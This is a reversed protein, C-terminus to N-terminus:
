DSELRLNIRVVARNDFTSLRKTESSRGQYTAKIEYDVDKSLGSFRYEGEAQSIFSRVQLTRMNKLQVVARVIPNDNADMVYGQVSRTNPDQDEQGRQAPLLPALALAVFAGLLLRATSRHATARLTTARIAVFRMM